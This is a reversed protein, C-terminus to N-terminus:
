KYNWVILQLLKNMKNDACYSIMILPYHINGHTLNSAVKHDMNMRHYTFHDLSCLVFRLLEILHM